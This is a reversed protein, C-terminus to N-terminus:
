TALTQAIEATTPGVRPPTNTSKKFQRQIKKTLTGSPRTAAHASNRLNSSFTVRSRCRISTAPADRSM